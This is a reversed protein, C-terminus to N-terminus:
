CQGKHHYRWVSEYRNLGYWSSDVVSARRTSALCSGAASGVPEACDTDTLSDDMLCHIQTIVKSINYLATADYGTTGQIKEHVALIQTSLTLSGFTSTLFVLCKKVYTSKLLLPAFAVAAHYAGYVNVDFNDKLGQIGIDVLNGFGKSVGSNYIAIDLNDTTKKIEEVALQMSKPDVADAVLIRVLGNSKEALALLAEANTPDRM